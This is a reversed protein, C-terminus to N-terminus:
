LHWFLKFYLKALIITFTSLYDFFSVVLQQQKFIYFLASLFYNTKTGASARVVDIRWRCDSQDLMTTRLEGINTLGTDELLLFYTGLNKVWFTWHNVSYALISKPMCSWVPSQPQVYPLNMQLMRPYSNCKGAPNKITKLGLFAYTAFSDVWMKIFRYELQRWRNINIYWGSACQNKFCIAPRFYLESKRLDVLTCTLM